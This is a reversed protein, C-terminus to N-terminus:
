AALKMWEPSGVVRAIKREREIRAIAEGDEKTQRVKFHSAYWTLASYLAWLNNGRNRIEEEFRALLVDAARDSYNKKLFALVEDTDRLRLARWGRWVEARCTFADVSERVHEVIDEIQLGATHRRYWTAHEGIIMGNICWADIAGTILKFATTGFGNFAIIRYVARSKEDIRVNINPLVYERLCYAGYRSMRDTCTVNELEHRTLSRLLMTEISSFLEKNQVVKYDAGVVALTLPKDTGLRVLAKYGEVPMTKTADLASAIHLPYEKVKFYMKSESPFPNWAEDYLAAPTFRTQAQIVQM